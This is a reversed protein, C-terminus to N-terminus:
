ETDSNELPPDADSCLDILEETKNLQPSPVESM